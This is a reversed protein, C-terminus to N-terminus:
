TNGIVAIHTVASSIGFFETQNAALRANNTTATVTSVGCAYSCIADTHLRVFKTGTALTVRTAAGVSVPDLDQGPELGALIVQGNEDHALRTYQRIYLLAM